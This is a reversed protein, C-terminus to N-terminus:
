RRISRNNEAAYVRIGRANALDANSVFEGATLVDNRRPQTLLRTQDFRFEFNLYGDADPLGNNLERLSVDFAATPGVQTTAVVIVGDATRDLRLSQVNPVLQGYVAETKTRDEQDRGGFIRGFLGRRETNERIIQAEDPREVQPERRSGCGVLSLAVLVIILQRM